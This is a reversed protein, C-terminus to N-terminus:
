GEQWDAASMGYVVTEVYHDSTWDLQPAIGELKFGLREPIARSKANTVMCRIEVRQLVLKCFAYTTMARCAATMIGRGEYAGGLWYGIETQQKGHDIYNYSIVGIMRGKLWVGANMGSHRAHQRLGFRIFRRCDELTRTGDVWPLWVRLRDRNREILSFLAETHAETLLDLSVDANIELHFM